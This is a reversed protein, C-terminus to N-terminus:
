LSATAERKQWRAKAGAEKEEFSDHLWIQYTGSIYCSQYHKVQRNHCVLLLLCFIAQWGTLIWRCGFPALHHTKLSSLPWIKLTGPHSCLWFAGFNYNWCPFVSSCGEVWFGVHGGSTDADTLFSYRVSNLGHKQTMLNTLMTRSKGTSM